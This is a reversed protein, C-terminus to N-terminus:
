PMRRSQRAQKALRGRQAKGSKKHGSGADTETETRGNKVIVEIRVPKPFLWGHPEARLDARGRIYGFRKDAYHRADCRTKFVLPLGVDYILHQRAGDLQNRSRWLLGWM